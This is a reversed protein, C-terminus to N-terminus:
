SHPGMAAPLDISARVGSGPNSELTFSGGHATAVERVLALGLGFRRGGGVGGGSAGGRAFRETLRDADDGALGEGDDVVAITVRDGSGITAITVHGGPPTHSLANDVLATVARRLASRSGRVQWASGPPDPPASVQLAVGAGVALVQLSAAVEVALEAPDLPEGRRPDAALASSELMEDVIEGLVRSDDLLQDVMPRAPDDPKMRRAILQARTHLVTLPTRLEHGADAVFRRQLALAEGLPAVARRAVFFGVFGAIAIGIIGAVLLAERLLEESEEHSEPRPARGSRFGDQLGGQLLAVGAVILVVVACAASIQWAVRRAASRVLEEDTGRAARGRM